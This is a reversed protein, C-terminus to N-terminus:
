LNKFTFFMHGLYKMNSLYVMYEHYLIVILHHKWYVNLYVDKMAPGQCAVCNKESITSNYFCKQLNEKSDRDFGTYLNCSYVVKIAKLWVPNTVLIINSLNTLWTIRPKAWCWWTVELIIDVSGFPLWAAM